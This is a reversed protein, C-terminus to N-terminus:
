ELWGLPDNGDVPSFRCPSDESLSFLRSFRIKPIVIVLDM